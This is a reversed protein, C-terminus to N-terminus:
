SIPKYSIPTDSKNKWTDLQFIPCGKGKYM